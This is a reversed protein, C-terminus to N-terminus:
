VFSIRKVALCNIVFIIIFSSLWLTFRALLFFSLIIIEIRARWSFIIQDCLEIDALTKEQESWRLNVSLGIFFCAFWTGEM